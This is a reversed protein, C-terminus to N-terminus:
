IRYCPGGNLKANKVNKCFEDTPTVKQYKELALFWGSPNDACVCVENATEEHKVSRTEPSSIDEIFLEATEVLVTHKVDRSPLIDFHGVKLLSFAESSPVTLELGCLQRDVRCFHFSQSTNTGDLAPDMGFLACLVQSVVKCPVEVM